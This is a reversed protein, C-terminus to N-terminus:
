VSLGRIAIRLGTISLYNTMDVVHSKDSSMSVDHLLATPESCFIQSRKYFKRIFASPERCLLVYPPIAGLANELQALEGKNEPHLYQALRSRICLILM